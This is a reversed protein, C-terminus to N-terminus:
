PSPTQQDRQLHLVLWAAVFSSLLFLGVFSAQIALSTSTQVPNRPHLVLPTNFVSWTLYAALLLDLLGKLRIWIPWATIIQVILTLAVVQFMATYRPESWFIGGWNVQAAVMSMGIGAIFFGLAVWGLTHTWAQLTRNASLLIGLGLLGLLALGTMGTWIFAVHLYVVKIGSGLTREAPALWLLLAALIILSSLLIWNSKPSKLLTAM